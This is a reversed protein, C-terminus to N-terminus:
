MSCSRQRIEAMDTVPSGSKIANNMVSMASVDSVLHCGGIIRPVIAKIRTNIRYMTARSASSTSENMASLDSGGPANRADSQARKM